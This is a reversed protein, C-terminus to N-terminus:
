RMIFNVVPDQALKSERLSLESQPELVASGAQFTVIYCRFLMCVIKSIQNETLYVEVDRAQGLV